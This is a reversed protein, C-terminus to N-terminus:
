APEGPPPVELAAREERERDIRGGLVYSGGWLALFVVGVAFMVPVVFGLLISLAQIGWGFAIGGPRRVMGAGVVCLAGLGLGIGIGAAASVSDTVAPLAIGVLFLVVAQLGLMGACMARQVSRM